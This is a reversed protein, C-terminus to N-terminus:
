TESIKLHMNNECKDVRFNCFIKHRTRAVSKIHHLHSLIRPPMTPGYCDKSTETLLDNLITQFFYSDTINSFRKIVDKPLIKFASVHFRATHIDAAQSSIRFVLIFSKFYVVDRWDEQHCLPCYLISFYLESASSKSHSSIENQFYM